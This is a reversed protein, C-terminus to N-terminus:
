HFKDLNQRASPNQYRAFRSRIAIRTLDLQSSWADIIEHCIKSGVGVERTKLVRLRTLLLLNLLPVVNPGSGIVTGPQSPSM